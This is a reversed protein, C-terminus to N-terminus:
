NKEKNRQLSSAIMESEKNIFVNAQVLMINKFYKSHQMLWVMEEITDIESGINIAQPKLEVQTTGTNMNGSGLFVYNLNINYNKVLRVFFEPGPNANGNEIDCLYSPTIKLTKAMERQGIRMKMRFEKLRMGIEESNEAKRM